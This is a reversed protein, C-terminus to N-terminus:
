DMWWTFLPFDSLFTKRRRDTRIKGKTYKKHVKKPCPMAGALWRPTFCFLWFISDSIKRCCLRARLWQSWLFGELGVNTVEVRYIGKFEVFGYSTEPGSLERIDPNCVCVCVCVFFFCLYNFIMGVVFVLLNFDWQIGMLKVKHWVHKRVFSFLQFCVCVCVCVYTCLCTYVYVFLPSLVVLLNLVVFSGLICVWACLFFPFFITLSVWFWELALVCVCM